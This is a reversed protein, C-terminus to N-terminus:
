KGIYTIQPQSPRPNRLVRIAKRADWVAFDRDVPTVSLYLEWQDFGDATMLYATGQMRYQAAATNSTATTFEIQSERAADSLLGAFRQMFLGFEDRECRSLNRVEDVSIVIMDQQNAARGALSQEISRVIMAAGPDIREPPKASPVPPM